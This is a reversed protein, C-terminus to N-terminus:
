LKKELLEIILLVNRMIHYPDKVPLAVVKEQPRGERTHIQIWEGVTKDPNPFTKYTYDFIREFWDFFEEDGTNFYSILSSYMAESHVWWLKSGFDDRVLRKQPEGDLAGGSNVDELGGTPVFHLFGGFDADWGLRLTNKMVRPIEKEYRGDGLIASAEYQFWMDELTHGPNIHNEFLRDPEGDVRVAEVVMGDRDFVEFVECHCVALREKLKPLYAADFSEAARYLECLVNTLLMPKTHTVYGQPVPYPLSRYEGSEYRTWVSELLSRAFGYAEPDRAARAYAAFGMVVFCDALISLDYGEYGEVAKPNGHGDMLFVCTPPDTSDLVHTELFRKGNEAYSLFIRRQEADFLSSETMALRSFMWLFRGQSWTYKDKSVLRSGDNTFCNLYGGDELDLCRSMWFELLSEILESKFFSLYHELRGRNKEFSCM